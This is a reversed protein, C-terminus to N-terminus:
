PDTVATWYFRLFFKRLLSSDLLTVLITRRPFPSIARAALEGKALIADAM